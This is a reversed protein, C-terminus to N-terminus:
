IDIIKEALICATYSMIILTSCGDAVNRGAAKSAPKGLGRAPCRGNADSRIAAKFGDM